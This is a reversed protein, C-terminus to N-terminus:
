PIGWPYRPIGWPTGQTGQYAGHASQCANFFANNQYIELVPPGHSIGQAIRPPSKSIGPPRAPTEPADKHPDSADRSHRQDGKDSM